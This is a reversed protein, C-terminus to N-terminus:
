LHPVAHGHDGRGGPGGRERHRLRLGRLGRAGGPHQQERRVEGLRALPAEGLVDAGHAAGGVEAHDDVAPRVGHQGVGGDGLEGLAVRVQDPELVADAVYM